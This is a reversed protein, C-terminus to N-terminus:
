CLMTESEITKDRGSKIRRLAIRQVQYSSRNFFFQMLYTCHQFDVEFGGNLVFHDLIILVLLKGHFIITDTVAINCSNHRRLIYNLLAASNRRCILSDALPSLSRQRKTINEPEPEPASNNISKSTSQAM